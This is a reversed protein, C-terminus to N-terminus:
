ALVSRYTTRRNWSSVLRRAQIKNSVEIYKNYFAIDNTSSVEKDENNVTKETTEKDKKSSLKEKLKNFSSCSIILFIAVFFAIIYIFKKM